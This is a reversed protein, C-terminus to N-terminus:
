PGDDGSPDYGEPGKKGNARGGGVLKNGGYPKVVEIAGWTKEYLATMEKFKAAHKRVEALDKREGPDSTLDFLRYRSAAMDRILKWDSQIIARTPPNNSDAPLDLVIPEHSAPKAGRLLEPVLSKGVFGPDPKQGMLEVITPALDIQSRRQEVRQKAVGGGTFFLPVQTLVEWLAFGHRFQKHEGFAEGHDASVVVVTREWWPQKRAFDLLKGIHLDTFFIESDYKDRTKRGWKPSEDHQVYQDHPDMYHLWMFFPGKVNEPKSLMDIAMTTMKDSTVSEDTTNNWAIGPTLRWEDFGQSLNKKRDFYKHGHGGMTRAGAKQLLETFWLNAGSYHTFFTGNRYLSSPYRGSLMAGVSKATYSSVTYARPYITGAEALKTLNPAIPREYGQWPMDSRM